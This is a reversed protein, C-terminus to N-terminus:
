LVVGMGFSPKWVDGEKSYIGVYWETKIPQGDCTGDGGGKYTLMTVDKAISVSQADSLWYSKVDCKNDTSWYKITAARDGRGEGGYFFFDKALVEELAKGDKAKWAEWVKKEVALVAETAADPKAEEKKAEAKPAAKAEAKKEEAKAGAKKEEKKAAAKADAKKPAAKADAKKEEAKPAAKADAKPAAAKEEAFVAPAQAMVFAGAVLAALLKKM